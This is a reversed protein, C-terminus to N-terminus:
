PFDPLPQRWFPPPENPNLDHKWAFRLRNALFLLDPRRLHQASGRRQHRVHSGPCNVLQIDLRCARQYYDSDEYWAPIFTEDFEGVRQFTARSLAFCWGAVGVGDNKEGNTLPFAIHGAQAAEILPKDWGPEVWCDSNLFCLTDGRALRAGENWAPAIGRNTPWNVLVSARYPPDTRHASANNVVIVETPVSAVTWVQDLCRTTDAAREPTQDWVAVVVSLVPRGM